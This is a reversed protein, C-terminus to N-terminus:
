PAPEPAAYFPRPWRSVHILAIGLAWPYFPLFGALLEFLFIYAVWPILIAALAIVRPM